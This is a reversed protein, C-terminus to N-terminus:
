GLLELKRSKAAVIGAMRDFFRETYDEVLCRYEAIWQGHTDLGTITVTGNPAPVFVVSGGRVPKTRPETKTSAFGRQVALDFLARKPHHAPPTDPLRLRNM